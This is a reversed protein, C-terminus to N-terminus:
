YGVMCAKQWRAITEERKKRDINVDVHVDICPRRLYLYLYM